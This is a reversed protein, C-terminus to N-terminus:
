GNYETRFCKKGEPTINSYDKWYMCGDSYKDKSCHTPINGDADCGVDESNYCFDKFREAARCKETLFACRSGKGFDLEDAMDTAVEYWGSDAMLTLTFISYKPENIDAGTMAEDGLVSREWHSGATGGGGANELGIGSM